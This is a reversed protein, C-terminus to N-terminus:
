FAPHGHRGLVVDLGLWVTHAYDDELHEAHDLNYQLRLRLAEHPRWTILPSIRWRDDRLPDAARGGVSDGNGTAQEYRLGASWQDALGVEVQVMVGLDALTSAAYATEDNSNPIGDPDDIYADVAYERAIVEGLVQVDGRRLLGHPDDGWRLALHGGYVATRTDDGAANPGFAVDGGIRVALGPALDVGARWGLTTVLDSFSHVEHEGLPRGGVTEGEEGVFSAMTEGRANQVTASLRSAWAVPLDLALTAGQGRMGDGGFVRSNIVPQDLWAWAHPHIANIRGFPTFFQGATLELGVPLSLSRIFAEELELETEGESSIFTVIRVEATVWPQLAGGIILEINPVSFGRGQPDHGGAQLGALADDDVSSGGAVVTTVFALEVLRAATTPRPDGAELQLDAVQAALLEQTRRLEELQKQVAPVQEEAALGAAVLWLTLHRFAAPLTIM